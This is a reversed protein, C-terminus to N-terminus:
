GRATKKKAKVVPKPQPKRGPKKHQAKPVARSKRPKRLEQALPRPGSKRKIAGPLHKWKSGNVVCRMYPAGCGYEHAFHAVLEGEAARRRADLVQKATLKANTADEGQPIPRKQFPVWELNAVACNSKNGDIFRAEYKPPRPGVFAELVLIHLGTYRHHKKTPRHVMQTIAAEYKPHSRSAYVRKLFKNRKGWRLHAVRYGHREKYSCEIIRIDGRGYHRELVGDASVWYPSTGIRRKIPKSM